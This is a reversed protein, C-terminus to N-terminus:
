ARSYIKKKEDIEVVRRIDKLTVSYKLFKMLVLVPVWGSQDMEPPPEHRLLRALDKSLSEYKSNKM